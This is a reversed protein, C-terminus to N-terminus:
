GERLYPPVMILHDVVKKVGDVNEAVVVLAEREAESDVYGWLEVVGGTVIVNIAGHTVWGEKEIASLVAERLSRDDMSPAAAVERRRAVLAHLLNARSVIGVLRGEGDVVPVRKIRREELIEAIEGLETDETVTVAPQSMIESAKVGHTKAYEAAREDSGSVLDLWWSRRRQPAIEPRRILDGESVIGLVRNDGDVVPAASIHHKLLLQAIEEVRTDPSVTVVKTTMIDKAQM